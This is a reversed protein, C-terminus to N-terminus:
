SGERSEGVWCFCRRFGVGGVGDLPFFVSEDFRTSLLDREM